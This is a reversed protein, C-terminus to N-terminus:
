LLLGGSNKLNDPLPPHELGIYSQINERFEKEKQSPSNLKEEITNERLTPKRYPMKQSNIALNVSYDNGFNISSQCATLVLLVLIITASKSISKWMM